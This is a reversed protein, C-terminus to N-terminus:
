AQAKQQSLSAAIPQGHDWMYEFLKRQVIAQNQNRIIVVESADYLMMGVYDDMIFVPSVDSIYQDPLARYNEHAGPLEKAERQDSVIARMQINLESMRKIHWETRAYHEDPMLTPNLGIYLLEKVGHARCYEYKFDQMKVEFDPGKFVQINPAAYKVGGDIFEIGSRECANKIAELTKRGPRYRGSEINTIATQSLGAKEGLMTQSWDLLARAAKIQQILIM